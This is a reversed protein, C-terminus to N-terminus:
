SPEEGRTHFLTIFRPDLAHSPVNGYEEEVENFLAELGSGIKGSIELPTLGTAGALWDLFDSKASLLIGGKGDESWLGQFFSRFPEMPIPAFGEGLGLSSRAFLTLILSKHTLFGEELPEMEPDMFSLLADFGRAEDLRTETVEIDRDKAIVPASM